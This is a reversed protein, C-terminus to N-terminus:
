WAEDLKPDSSRSTTQNLTRSPLEAVIRIKFVGTSTVIKNSHLNFKIYINLM